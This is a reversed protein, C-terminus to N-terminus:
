FLLSALAGAVVIATSWAVAEATIEMDLGYAHAVVMSNIGSPMAALLLYAAPLDILPASFALLLAPAVLLRCGVSLAVPRTLPPPLPLDGREANEALTAGVAFFGLPLIAVLLAQSLDVALEPALADPALLGPSRRTSRRTAPSSRGCGSARRRGRGAHRLRRRGRLRRAAPLARHRPRRLPRRHLAGRPRAPRRDAPLRPLRHQRLAGHLRRRRDAAPEAAALADALAGPSCRADALLHAAGPRDRGRPRPRGGGRRPQLLHDAPDARLADPRPDAAGRAGGGRAQAARGLRRGRGLRRDRPRHAPRGDGSGKLDGGLSCRYESEEALTASIGTRAIYATLRVDGTDRDEYKREIPRRKLKLTPTLEEGGPAWEGPIVTYRKIQEVRSLRENGAEVAAAIEEVIAEDEASAGRAALTEQDLTILAVNYPRRDGIAVVQAILPSAAKVKAEINAPSMNKGAANIILEKKRDVIRLYGQEDFEGVDGTMLWGDETLAEATKEPMNRYGKMVQPGRVMVEGDEALKVETDPLPPGVTGVRVRGPRTSRRWRARRRCDGLDRLDRDRDRPLVRAGRAADPRRRGRVMRGRRPRAALPDKSFVKEDAEDWEAQLEAPVEGEMYAAVRRRGIEMAWETAERKEADQEAAMATELAAKLKEWIRPVGGWATPKVEISYVVMQKPDPCCHLTDGFIMQGYHQAWRDAIHASPLFSISRGGPEIARVEDCARWVALMNAHTLQVGKPPGTTGSTYILCLVDEPEVARWAAEFDFEGAGMAELEEVSITGEPAEGDIVVVHELTEVREKAELM